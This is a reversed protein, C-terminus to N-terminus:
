VLYMVLISFCFFTKRKLDCTSQKFSSRRKYKECKIPNIEIKTKLKKKKKIKNGQFLISKDKKNVGIDATLANLTKSLKLKNKKKHLKITKYATPKKLVDNCSTDNFFLFNKQLLKM